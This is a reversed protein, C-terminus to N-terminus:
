LCRPHTGSSSRFDSMWTGDDPWWFSMMLADFSMMLAVDPCWWVMMVVDDPCSCSMMRAPRIHSFQQKARVCFQPKPKFINQKTQFASMMLDDDSWWESLYGPQEYEFLLCWWIMMRGDDSLYGPQEHGFDPRWWTMMLDDDPLWGRQKYTTPRMVKSSKLSVTNSCMWKYNGITSCWELQRSQSVIDHVSNM